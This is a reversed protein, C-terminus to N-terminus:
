IIGHIEQNAKLDITFVIRFPVFHKLPRDIFLYRKILLFLRKNLHEFPRVNTVM